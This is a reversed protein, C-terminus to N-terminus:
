WRGVAPGLDSPKESMKPLYERLINIIEAPDDSRGLIDAISEVLKLLKRMNVNVDATQKAEKTERGM